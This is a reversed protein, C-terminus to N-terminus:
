SKNARMGMKIACKKLNTVSKFYDKGTLFIRKWPLSLANGYTEIQQPQSKLEM